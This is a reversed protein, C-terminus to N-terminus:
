SDSELNYEDQIAEWVKGFRNPEDLIFAIFDMLMKAARRREVDTTPHEVIAEQLGRAILRLEQETKM